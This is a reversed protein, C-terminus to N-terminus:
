NHVGLIKNIQKINRAEQFCEQMYLWDSPNEDFKWGVKKALHKKIACQMIDIHGFQLKPHLPEYDYYNHLISWILVEADENEITEVFNPFYYNDHNTIVVYDGDDELEDLLMRRIPHGWHGLPFTTCGMTINSSLFMDNIAMFQENEGDHIIKLNYHQSTQVVLSPVLVPYSQYAPSIIQIM